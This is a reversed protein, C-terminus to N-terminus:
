DKKEILVKRWFVLIGSFVGVGDFYSSLPISNWRWGADLVGFVLLFRIGYYM